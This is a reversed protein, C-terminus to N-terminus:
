YNNRIFRKAAAYDYRNHDNLVRMSTEYYDDGREAGHTLQVVGDEYIHVIFIHNKYRWVEAQTICKSSDSTKTRVVRIDEM